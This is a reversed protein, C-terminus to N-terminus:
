PHAKSRTASDNAAGLGMLITPIKLMGFSKMISRGSLGAKRGLFWQNM